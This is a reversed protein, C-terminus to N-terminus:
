EWWRQGSMQMEGPLKAGFSLDSLYKLINADPFLFCVCLM